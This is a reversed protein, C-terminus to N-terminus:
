ALSHFDSLSSRALGMGAYDAVSEGQMLLFLWARGVRASQACTRSSVRKRCLTGIPYFKAKQPFPM